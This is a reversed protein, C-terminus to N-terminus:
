VLLCFEAFLGRSLALYLDFTNTYITLYNRLKLGLKHLTGEARPYSVCVWRLIALSNAILDDLHFHSASRFPSFRFSCEEAEEKESVVSVLLVSYRWFVVRQQPYAHPVFHARM